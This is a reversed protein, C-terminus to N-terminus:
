VYRKRPPNVKKWWPPSYRVAGSRMLTGFPANESFYELERHNIQRTNRTNSLSRAIANGNRDFSEIRWPYFDYYGAGWGGCIRSAPLRITEGAHFSAWKRAAPLHRLGDRLKNNLM